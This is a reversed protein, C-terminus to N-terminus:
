TRYTGPFTASEGKLQLQRGCAVCNINCDIQKVQQDSVPCQTAREAGTSLEAETGHGPTRRVSYQTRATIWCYLDKMEFAALLQPCSSSSVMGREGRGM